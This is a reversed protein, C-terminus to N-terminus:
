RTAVREIAPAGKPKQAAGPEAETDGPEGGAADIGGAEEGSRDSEVIGVAVASIGSSVPPGNGPSPVLPTLTSVSSPITRLSM